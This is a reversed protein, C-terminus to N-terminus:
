KKPHFETMREAEDIVIRFKDFVDKRGLLMPAAESLVWAIKTEFKSKGIKIDVAKTIFPVGHGSVGRLDNIHGEGLKFGLFLGVELSVITIDAGSDVLMLSEIRKGNAEFVVDAAPKLSGYLQRYPFVIM